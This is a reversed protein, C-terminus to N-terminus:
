IAFGFLITNTISSDSDWNLKLKPFLEPTKTFFIFENKVLFEFYEEITSDYLNDYKEKVETITKGEHKKLLNYLDNPILKLNNRQLDCIVSRNAGKIPVCNSFLRFPKHLKM